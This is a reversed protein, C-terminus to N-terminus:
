GQDGAVPAPNAAPKTDHSEKRFVNVMGILALGTTLIAEQMEPHLKIGLATLVAFLGRWTSPEKLRELIYKM